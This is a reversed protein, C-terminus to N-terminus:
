NLWARCSLSAHQLCNQSAAGDRMKHCWVLFGVVRPDNRRRRQGARSFPQCPSGSVDADAGWAKCLHGHKCCHQHHLCQGQGGALSTWIHQLNGQSMPPVDNVCDAIDGGFVCADTDALRAKLANVCSRTKDLVFATKWSASAAMWEPLNAHLVHLAVEVTGLGSFHSSVSMSKSLLSGGCVAETIEFCMQEYHPRQGLFGAFLVFVQRGLCKGVWRTWIDSVSMCTADPAM